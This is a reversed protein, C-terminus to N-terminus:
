LPLRVEVVTGGGPRPALAVNGRHKEVVRKVVFLGLGSGKDRTTFFPDFARRRDASAIGPGRDEIDVVAFRHKGTGEVTGSARILGGQPQAQIANLVLNLFVQRLALRSAVVPPLDGLAAEVAIGLRRTEPAVSALVETLLESLDVPETAAPRTSGISLYNTLVRNLRDVEEKIYQVAKEGALEPRKDLREAAALIIALPNKIEHAVAASMQGMLALTNARAAAQEIRLARRTMTLSLLVIAIVAVLSLGNTLLLSNRFDAVARFYRADAEAGLVAVPIGLSDALPVYATKLVFGGASYLHSQSPIGSLAAALEAEDLQLAPDTRGVRA